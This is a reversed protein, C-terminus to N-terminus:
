VSYQDIIESDPPQQHRRIVPQGYEACPRAYAAAPIKGPWSSPNSRISRLFQNVAARPLWNARGIRISPILGSSILRYVSMKSVELMVAVENVTLLGREDRHEIQPPEAQDDNM